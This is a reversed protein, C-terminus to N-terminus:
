LAFELETGPSGVEAQLIAGFPYEFLNMRPGSSLLARAVGFRTARREEPRRHPRLKGRLRRVAKHVRDAKQARSDPFLQRGTRVGTSTLWTSIFTLFAKNEM